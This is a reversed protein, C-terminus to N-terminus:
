PDMSRSMLDILKKILAETWELAQCTETLLTQWTWVQLSWYIIQLVEIWGWTKECSYSPGAMDRKGHLVFGIKIICTLKIQSAVMVSLAPNHDKRPACM